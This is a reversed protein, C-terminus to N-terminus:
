QAKTVKALIGIKPSDLYHLEDRRMLRNEKLVYGVHGGEVAQTYLLHADLHLYHGALLSVTGEIPALGDGDGGTLTDGWQLHLSPGKEAPPDKQTWALRILPQYRKSNKLHLWPDNLGFQDEPLLTIGAAALSTADNLEIARNTSPRIPRRGPESAANKDLYVILDVRYTEARVALPALLSLLLFCLGIKKM